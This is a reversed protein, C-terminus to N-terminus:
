QLIAVGAGSATNSTISGEGPVLSVVRSTSSAAPLIAVALTPTPPSTRATSHTAVRDAALVHPVVPLQTLTLQSLFLTFIPISSSPRLCFVYLEDDDKGKLPAEAEAVSAPFLIASLRESITNFYGWM